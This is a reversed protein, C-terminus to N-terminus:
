ADDGNWWALAIALADAQTPDVKTVPAAGLQHRFWTRQRKAYQRTAVIIRHVADDQTVEGTVAARLVDYGTASWAPADEPILRALRTVESPWGADVMDHVRQAIRGALAGGPDVLLYRATARPARSSARHMDSLREGTLLATEIARLLQTRGLHSRPPDLMACWRQLDSTSRSALEADLADRRIPDLHPVSVLPEFFARIYFGTGGVILPLRETSEIEHLWGNACEAWQAASFRDTPAAVGVGFHPILSRDRSSPKSTGIDFDRYVQRSDASVISAGVQQALRLALESKGAATPGVIVRLIPLAETSPGM